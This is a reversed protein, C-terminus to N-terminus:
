NSSPEPPTQYQTADFPEWRERMRNIVDDPVNHINKFQGHCEIVVPIFDNAIAAEIYKEYEWAQTFTNSVAAYFGPNQKMTNLIEQFCWEHADKIRDANFQYLGHIMHFMDAEFHCLQHVLKRALTSKGSGPLGRIIYLTSM